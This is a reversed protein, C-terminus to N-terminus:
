KRIEKWTNIDLGKESVHASIKYVTFVKIVFSFGNTITVIIEDKM